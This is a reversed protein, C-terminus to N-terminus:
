LSETNPCEIPQISICTSNHHVNFEVLQTGLNFVHVQQILILSSWDFAWILYM